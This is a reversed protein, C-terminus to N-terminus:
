ATAASRAATRSSQWTLVLYPPAFALAYAILATADAGYLALLVFFFGAAPIRLLLEVRPVRAGADRRWALAALGLSLAWALGVVPWPDVTGNVWRLAGWWTALLLLHVGGSAIPFLSVAPLRPRDFTWMALGAFFAWGLIGIPPVAFLGPETWWWLGSQVAIPEILSADALVILAGVLPVRRPDRTLRRALDWASHIVVPWIAIILVPVQDLFLSWRPSYAYFHYAHICTDEGIWAGTALLLLRLLFTRPAPDRRVRVVLYLVVIAVCALELAIM